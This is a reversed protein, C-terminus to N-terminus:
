ENTPTKVNGKSFRYQFIVDLIYFGVNILTYIYLYSKIDVENVAAIVIGIIHSVLFSVQWKVIYKTAEVILAAKDVTTLVFSAFGSIVLISAYEGADRWSEGFFFSFIDPSFLYIIVYPLLGILFTKKLTIKLIIDFKGFNRYEEAAKQRFVDGIASSVMVGPLNTLQYALSFLGLPAVGFLKSIAMVPIQQRLVSIALSPMLFVPFQRYRRILPLLDRFYISERNTKIVLIFRKALFGMSILQGLLTSLILGLARFEMLGMLLKTLGTSSTSIVRNAALRKYKQNRNEWYYQSQYIGFFLVGLPLYIVYSDFQPQNLWQSIEKAYVLSPILLLLSFACTIYISIVSLKLADLDKEPLVIAQDYKGTSFVILLSSISVYLSLMGMEEPTYIRTLLPTIMIPIAQAISTGSALVLINKSFGSRFLGKIYERIVKL